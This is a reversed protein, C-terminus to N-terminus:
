STTRRDSISGALPNSVAAGPTSELVTSLVRTSALSARGSRLDADCVRVERRGSDPGPDSRLLRFIYPLGFLTSDVTTGPCSCVHAPQRVAENEPGDARGRGTRAQAHLTAM